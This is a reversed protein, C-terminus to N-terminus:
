LGEQLNKSLLNVLAKTPLQRFQEMVDTKNTIKEKKCAILINAWRSDPNPKNLERIAVSILLEDPDDIFPPAQQTTDQPPISKTKKKSIKGKKNKKRVSKIKDYNSRSLSVKYKRLLLEVADDFGIQENADLVDNM